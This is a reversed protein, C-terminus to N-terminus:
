YKQSFPISDQIETEDIPFFFLLKSLENGNILLIKNSEALERASKTYDTTAIIAGSSAQYHDIAAKVQQVADNGINKNHNKAQVVMKTYKNSIILDCGQDHSDQTQIVDYGMKTFLIGLFKEFNTGSFNCIETFSFIGEVSPPPLSIKYKKKIYDKLEKIHIADANLSGVPKWGMEIISNIKM